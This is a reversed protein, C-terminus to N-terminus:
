APDLLGFYSVLAVATLALALEVLACARLARAGAPGYEIGPLLVFRNFIALAIMVAVVAIKAILLARYPSTPPWPFHGGTMAVNAAGTALILVVALQGVASFRLMAVEAAHALEARRAAALTLAFPLLGGLWGGTLLLHLGDNARHALGLGGTQMAAHDALALSALAGAGVLTALAPKTAPALIVVLELAALGPLRVLWVEGFASSSLVDRIKDVDLASAWEGSMSAAELSLWGLASVFSVGSAAIMWPKLRPAIEGRLEAPAFAWAFLGAGFVFQLAVFHAFRAIALALEM